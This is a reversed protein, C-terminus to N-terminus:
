LQPCNEAHQCSGEELVQAGTRRYRLSEGVSQSNAQSHASSDRFPPVSPAVPSLWSCIPSSLTYIFAREEETEAPVIRLLAIWKYTNVEEETSELGKIEKEQRTAIALFKLVLRLLLPSFLQRQRIQWSKKKIDGRWQLREQGVETSDM